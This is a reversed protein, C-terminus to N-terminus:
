REDASGGWDPRAASGLPERQRSRGRQGRDYGSHRAAMPSRIGDAPRRGDGVRGDGSVAALAVAVLHSPSPKDGEPRVRRTAESYLEDLRALHTATQFREEVKARAAAGMSVARGPDGLVDRLAGALALPDNAPVLAGDVGPEILEPLGGLQSAVVPVGCAFAELVIMPQNEYWRSPVAVLAAGRLLDHTAKKSLAGHFRVREPALRRALSELAEREPGDGAVELTVGELLAVAEILVDVGKEQALRGAYAVGAGAGARVSIGGCDIFHPLHRLREVFVGAASMRGAIFRSPCIFLQVPRYAGTVTHLSLELASVASSALSGRNCRRLVAHHFRGGLCAECIKGHDLFRYTPCALKYDHLTMVAPVGRRALPRLISPSLQHYINHLHVVDPRFDDLVADM